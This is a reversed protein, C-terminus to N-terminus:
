VSGEDEFLAKEIAEWIVKGGAKESIERFRADQSAIIRTREDESGLVRKLEHAIAEFDKRHFLRGSAGMIEKVAEQAFAFIPKHFYMAEVLPICFGEHESMTIFASSNEYLAKLNGDSLNELIYTHEKIEPAKNKLIHALYNMYGPFTSNGAILLSSDPDIRHYERFLGLLDEVKKHPAIRGVYLLSTRTQPLKIAETEILEWKKANLLPPCVFIQIEQRTQREEPGAEPQTDMSAIKRPSGGAESIAGNLDELGKKLVSGSMESNAMFVDFEKIIQFQDYAKACFSAFEADYVRFMKPPTINQFFLIKKGPLGAMSELHPCFISFNFFILDTEKVQYYLESIHKITGRLSPDFNYAYMGCKIHNLRFFKYLNLVFNGIADRERIDNSVIHISAAKPWCYWNRSTELVDRLDTEMAQRRALSSKLLDQDTYLLVTDEFEIAKNDANRIVIHVAFAKQGSVSFEPNVWKEQAEEDQFFVKFNSREGSIKVKVDEQKILPYAWWGAHGQPHVHNSASYIDIVLFCERGWVSPSFSLSFIQPGKGALDLYDQNIRAFPPLDKLIEKSEREM